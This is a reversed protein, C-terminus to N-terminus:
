EFSEKDIITANDFIYDRQTYDKTHNRGHAKEQM